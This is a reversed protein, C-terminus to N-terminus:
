NKLHNIACKARWPDMWRYCQGNRCQRHQQPTQSSACADNSNDRNSVRFSLPRCCHSREVPQDRNRWFPEFLHVRFHESIQNLNWWSVLRPGKASCWFVNRWLDDRVSTVINGGVVPWQTNQDKLQEWLASWESCLIIKGNILTNQTTDVPLSM